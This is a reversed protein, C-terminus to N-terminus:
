YVKILLETVDATPQEIMTPHNDFTESWNFTSSKKENNYLDIFSIERVLDVHATHAAHM